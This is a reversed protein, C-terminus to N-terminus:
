MQNLLTARLMTSRAVSTKEINMEDVLRWLLIQENIQVRRTLAELVRGVWPNKREFISEVIVQKHEMDKEELFQKLMDNGDLLKKYKTEYYLQKHHQYTKLRKKMVFKKLRDAVTSIKLKFAKQSWINYAHRKERLHNRRLNWYLNSLISKMKMRRQDRVLDRLTQLAMAKKGTMSRCLLRTMLELRKKHPRLVIKLFELSKEKKVDMAKQIKRAMLRGIFKRNRYRELRRMVRAKDRFDNKETKAAMGDWLKLVVEEKKLEESQKGRANNKLLALALGAKSMSGFGLKMFMRLIKADKVSDLYAKHKNWLRLRDLVRRLKKKLPKFLKLDYISGYEAEKAADEEGIMMKLKKIMEDYRGDHNISELYKLFAKPDELGHKDLYDFADKLRPDERHKALYDLMDDKAGQKGAQGESNLFRLFDDMEGNPNLEAIKRMLDERTMNPNEEMAKILDDYKGDENNAKLWALIDDNNLTKGNLLNLLEGVGPLDKHKKLIHALSELDPNEEKKMDDLIPNLVGDPNNARIYDMMNEFGNRHDKENLHDLLQKNDPGREGELARRIAETLPDRGNDALNDLAGEIQPNLDGNENNKQTWGLAALANGPRDLDGGGLMNDILGSSYEEPDENIVGLAETLTMEPNERLMEDLKGLGPDLDKNDYAFRRLKDMDSEKMGFDLFDLAPQVEGRKNGSKLTKLLAGIDDSDIERDAILPEIKELGPVCDKYKAIYEQLLEKPTIRAGSAADDNILGKVETNLLRNKALEDYVTAIELPSEANKAKRLIHQYKRPNKSNRLQDLLREGPLLKQILDWVNDLSDGLVEEDDELDVRRLRAMLDENNMIANGEGANKLKDSLDAMDEQNELYDLVDEYMKRNALLKLLFKDEESPNKISSLSKHAESIRQDTVSELNGIQNELWEDGGNFAKAREIFDQLIPEDRNNIAAKIAKNEPRNLTKKNKKLFELISPRELDLMDKALQDDIGSRSNKIICGLVREVPAPEGATDIFDRAVGFAAEKGRTPEGLLNVIETLKPREQGKNERLVTNYKGKKNNKKMYELAKNAKKLGKAGALLEDNQGETNGKRLSSILDDLTANPKKELADKLADGEGNQNRLPLEKKFIDVLMNQSNLLDRVNEFGKKNRQGDIYKFLGEKDKIEGSELKKLLEANKGERPHRRVYNKIEDFFRRAGTPKPNNIRKALERALKDADLVGGKGTLIERKKIEDNTERLRELARRKDMDSNKILIQFMRSMNKRKVPDAYLADMKSPLAMLKMLAERLKLTQTRNVLNIIRKRDGLEEKKKNKLGWLRYFADSLSSQGRTGMGKFLRRKVIEHIRDKRNDKLGFIMLKYFSNNLKDGARMKLVNMAFNRRTKDKEEAAETENKQQTMKFLLRDRTRDIKGGLIELLYKKGDSKKLAKMRFGRLRNFLNFKMIQNRSVLREILLRLKKNRKIEEGVMEKKAASLKLLVRMKDYKAQKRLLCCLATKLSNSKEGEFKTKIRNQMLKALALALNARATDKMKHLLHSKVMVRKTELMHETQGRSVMAWLSKNRVKNMKQGFARLLQRRSREVDRKEQLNQQLNRLALIQKNQSKNDLLLIVKELNGDKIKEEKLTEQKNEMLRRLCWRLKNGSGINLSRFLKQNMLEKKQDDAQNDVKNRILRMLAVTQAGRAWDGALNALLRTNRQKQQEQAKEVETKGLMARVVKSKKQNLREGLQRLLDRRKKERMEARKRNLLLRYFALGTKQKSQNLMLGILGDRKVEKATDQAREERIKRRLARVLREKAFDLRRGLTRLLGGRTGKEIEMKTGKKEGARRLLEIVYRLKERHNGMLGLLAGRRENSEKSQTANERNKNLLLKYLAREQITKLRNVMFGAIRCQRDEKSLSTVGTNRLQRLAEAADRLNNDVLRRVIRNGMVEKKKLDQAFDRLNELVERKDRLERLGQGAMVRALGQNRKDEHVRGDRMAKGLQSLGKRQNRELRGFLKMALLDGRTRRNKDSDRGQKRIERLRALADRLNNNQTGATRKFMRFKVETQRKGRRLQEKLKDLVLFKRGTYSTALARLLKEKLRQQEDDIQLREFAQKKLKSVASRRVDDMRLGFKQLLFQRKMQDMASNFDEAQNDEKKARTFNQLRRLVLRQLLGMKGMVQVMLQNKKQLMKKAREIFEKKDADRKRKMFNKLFHLGNVRKKDGMGLANFKLRDLVQQKLVKSNLFIRNFAKQAKVPMSRLRTLAQHAQNAKSRLLRVLTRELLKCKRTYHNPNMKQMANRAEKFQHIKVSGMLSMLGRTLKLMIAREDRQKHTRVLSLMRWAAVSNSLPLKILLNTALKKFLNPNSKVYWRYYSHMVQDGSFNKHMAMLLKGKIRASVDKMARTRRANIKFLTYFCSNRNKRQLREFVHRMYRTKNLISFQKGISPDLDIVKNIVHEMMADEMSRQPKGIMGQKQTDFKRKGTISEEYIDQDSDSQYVEEVKPLKRRSITVVRRIEQKVEVIKKSPRRELEYNEEEEEESTDGDNGSEIVKKQQQLLRVNLRLMGLAKSMKQDIKRTYQFFVRTVVRERKLNMQLAKIRWRQLVRSFLMKKTSGTKAIRIFNRQFIKQEEPKLGFDTYNEDDYSDNWQMSGDSLDEAQEIENPDELGAARFLSFKSQFEMLGRNFENKLNASPDEDDEDSGESAFEMSGEKKFGNLHESILNIIKVRRESLNFEQNFSTQLNEAREMSIEEGKTLTQLIEKMQQEEFM